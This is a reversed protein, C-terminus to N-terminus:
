IYSFRIEPAMSAVSPNTGPIVTKIFEIFSGLIIVIRTHM